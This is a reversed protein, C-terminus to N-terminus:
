RVSASTTAWMAAFASTQRLILRKLGSKLNSFHCVNIVDLCRHPSHLCNVVEGLKVLGDFRTGLIFNMEELIAGFQECSLQEQM